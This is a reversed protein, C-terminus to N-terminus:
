KASAIKINTTFQEIGCRDEARILHPVTFRNYQMRLRGHQPGDLNLDTLFIFFIM